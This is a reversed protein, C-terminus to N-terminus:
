QRQQSSLRALGFGSGGFYNGNYIMFLDSGYEYVYPYALMESDWGKESLVIGSQDDKRTWVIGDKSEAYGIRYSSDPNSRFDKISRRSYWMKYISDNKIVSGRATIEFDDKPIICSINDRQWDIGNTSEAYKIHYSIEPKDNIINWRTGSTYWMKYVDNEYMVFPATTFYPEVRTRDMIPGEYLKDFTMGNDRSRAIGISNRAPVSTSTNWGYYYMLLENESQGRLVCSVNAGLDDFAGLPGLDLVPEHHEYLIRFPDAPNVDIFTTRTRNQKDRVGFYIRLTHEDILFTTPKHTHTWEWDSHKSVCYIRGLKEWQM